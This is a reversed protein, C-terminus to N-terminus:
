AEVSASSTAGAHTGDRTDRQVVAARVFRTFLPHPRLPKSKFEPHFQCAVFHPHKPLEVMEVLHKDPSLGSLVLGDAELKERHQNNVEYRHRHRERVVPEGYLEAVLSGERLQAEYLGLRMTGGLDGGGGIIEVQEAMTAIVPFET